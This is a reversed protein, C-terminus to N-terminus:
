RPPQSSRRGRRTRPWWRCRPTPDGAAATTTAITLSQPTATATPSRSRGARRIGNLLPQLNQRRAPVLEGAGPEVLAQRTSAGAGIPVRWGSVPRASCASTRVSRRASTSAVSCRTSRWRAPRRSTPGAPAARCTPSTASACTPRCSRRRIGPRWRGNSCSAAVRRRLLRRVHDGLFRRGLPLPVDFPEALHTIEEETRPRGFLPADAGLPTSASGNRRRRARGAAVARRAGSRHALPLPRHERHQAARSAPEPADIRRVDATHALDDFAADQQGVWRWRRTRRPPRRHRAGAARVHNMYQTTALLEFFEVARAPWGTVDRALQELM